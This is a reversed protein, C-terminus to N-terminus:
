RDEEGRVPQDRRPHHRSAGRDDRLRRRRCGGGRRLCLGTGGGLAAGQVRAVLPKDFEDLSRFLQALEASDRRNEELTFSAVRKMWNLDAGACFSKGEGRLEVVRVSADAALARFTKQLELILVDDFANHVDPRNLVVRALRADAGREM